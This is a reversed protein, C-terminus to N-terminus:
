MFCQNSPFHFADIKLRLCAAAKKRVLAVHSGWPWAHRLLHEDEAAPPVNV